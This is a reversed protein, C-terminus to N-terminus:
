EDIILRLIKFENTILIKIISYHLQLNKKYNVEKQKIILQFFQAVRIIKMQKIIM